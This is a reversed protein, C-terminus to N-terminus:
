ACTKTHAVGQIQSKNIADWDALHWMPAGVRPVGVEGNCRSEGSDDAYLGIRTSAPYTPTQSM